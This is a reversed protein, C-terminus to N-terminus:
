LIKLYELEPHLIDQFLTMNLDTCNNELICVGAPNGTFPKDTFADVTFIRM